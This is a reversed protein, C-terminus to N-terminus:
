VKLYKLYNMSNEKFFNRISLRIFCSFYFYYLYFHISHRALLFEHLIIRVSNRQGAFVFSLICMKIRCKTKAHIIDITSKQRIEYSKLHINNYIYCYKTFFTTRALIYKLCLSSKTCYTLEASKKGKDIRKNLFKYNRYYSSKGTWRM